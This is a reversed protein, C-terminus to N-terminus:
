GEGMSEDLKCVPASERVNAEVIERNGRTFEAEVAWVIAEGGPCGVSSNLTTSGHKFSASVRPVHM